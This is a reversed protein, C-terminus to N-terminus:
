IHPLVAMWDLSEYCGVPVARLHVFVEVTLYLRAVVNMLFCLFFVVMLPIDFQRIEAVRGRISYLATSLPSATAMIICCIRWLNQETGTPFEFNWAAFHVGAFLTSSLLVPYICLEPRMGGTVSYNEPVRRIENVDPLKPDLIKRWSPCNEVKPGHLYRVHDLSQRSVTFVVPMSIDVPKSWWMLYIILAYIAYGVTALELTTLPLGYAWRGICQLGFYVAQWCAVVKIFWDGKSKDDIMERTLCGPDLVGTQFMTRLVDAEVCIFPTVKPCPLSFGSKTSGLEPGSEAQLWVGGMRVFACMKRDWKAFGHERMLRADHRADWWNVFAIGIFVEPFLAALGTLKLKRLWKARESDEPAPVNPHLSAWLCTFLLFECTWVIDLTGRSNPGDVWGVKHGTDDIRYGLEESVERLFKTSNLM